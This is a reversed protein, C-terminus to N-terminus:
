PYIRIKRGDGTILYPTFWKRRVPDKSKGNRAPRHVNAITAVSQKIPM